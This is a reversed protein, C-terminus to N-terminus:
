YSDIVFDLLAVLSDTFHIQPYSQLKKPIQDRFANMEDYDPVIPLYRM